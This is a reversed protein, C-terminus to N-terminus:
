FHMLLSKVSLSLECHAPRQLYQGICDLGQIDIDIDVPPVTFRYLAVPV